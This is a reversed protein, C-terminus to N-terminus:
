LSNPIRKVRSAPFVCRFVSGEGPESQVDLKAGHRKLVHKVIALGLGTGGHRRSHSSDVRYFRQTIFPLHRAEIGLGRDEVEFVAGGADDGGWRVRVPRGEPSYRLANTVLNSLASYLEREVGLVGEDGDIAVELPHKGEDALEADRAVRRVLEPMDVTPGPPADAEETELRSLELLDTVLNNMRRWQAQMEILPEHWESGPVSEEALSDLYGGLVTLPSRLEHSANAVFDRRMAQLRHLRTVDRILLLFQENGYPVLRLTLHRGPDVPSRIEVASEYDGANLYAVFRPSRILNTVPQGLDKHHTLQMLRCAADNCWIIRLDRDLVLTGDPMAATAERFERIVAALRKKSRHQRRRLRDYDDLVRGWIGWSSPPHRRRSRLWDDLRYLQVVWRGLFLVVALLLFWPLHGFIAGLLLAGLLLGALAAFESIWARSM